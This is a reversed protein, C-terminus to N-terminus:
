DDFDGSGSSSFLIEGLRFGSLVISFILMAKRIATGSSATM